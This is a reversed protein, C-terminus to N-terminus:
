GVGFEPWVTVIREDLDIAGRDIQQLLLLAIIAKGVSYFNVITDHMWTRSRDADRWGRHLDVVRIEDVIVCVGAGVEGRSAFNEVFADRVDRFRSDCHGGVPAEM